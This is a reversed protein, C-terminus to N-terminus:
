QVVMREGISYFARIYEFGELSNLAPAYGAGPV